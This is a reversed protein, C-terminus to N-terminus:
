LCLPSLDLQYNEKPNTKKITEKKQEKLDLKSVSRIRAIQPCIKGYLHDSAQM